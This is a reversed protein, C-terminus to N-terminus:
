VPCGTPDWHHGSYLPESQVYSEVSWHQMLTVNCVSESVELMESSQCVAFLGDVEKSVYWDVLGTDPWASSMCKVVCWVGHVGCWHLRGGWGVGCQVVGRGVVGCWVLM